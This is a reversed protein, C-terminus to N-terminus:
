LFMVEGSRALGGRGGRVSLCVARPVGLLLPNPYPLPLPLTRTPSRHPVPPVAALSLFRLRDRASATTHSRPMQKGRQATEGREWRRRRRHLNLARGSRRCAYVRNLPQASPPTHSRSFPLPSRYTRTHTHAHTRTHRSPKTRGAPPGIGGMRKNMEAVNPM